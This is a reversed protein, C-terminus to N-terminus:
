RGNNDSRNIFNRIANEAFEDATVDQEAAAEELQEALPSPIFIEEKM